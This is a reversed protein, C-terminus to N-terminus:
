REPPRPASSEDEIRIRLRGDSRVLVASYSVRIPASGTLGWDLGGVVAVADRSLPEYDLEVWRFSAPASWRPSRYIGAISDPSLLAKRGNGLLYAGRPDYRAIIADRDGALLDRAYSEMFARAEDVVDGAGVGSRRVSVICAGLLFPLLWTAGIAWRRTARM